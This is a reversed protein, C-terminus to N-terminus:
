TQFKPHNQPRNSGNKCTGFIRFNGITHTSGCAFNKQYRCHIFPYYLLPVQLYSHQLNFYTAACWSKLKFNQIIKQGINATKAILIVIVALRNPIRIITMILVQYLISKYNKKCSPDILILSSWDPDILFLQFCGYFPTYGLIRSAFNESEGPM